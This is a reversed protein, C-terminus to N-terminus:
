RGTYNMCWQSFKTIARHDRRMQQTKATTAERSYANVYNFMTNYKGNFQDVFERLETQGFNEYLGTKKVKSILRKVTQTIQANISPKTM